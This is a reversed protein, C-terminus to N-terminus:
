HSRGTIAQAALWVCHLMRAVRHQRAVTVRGRHVDRLLDLVLHVKQRGKVLFVRLATKHESAVRDTSPDADLHTNLHVLCLTKM